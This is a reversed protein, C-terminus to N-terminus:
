LCSLIEILMNAHESLALNRRKTRMYMVYLIHTKHANNCLLVIFPIRIQKNAIFFKERNQERSFQWHQEKKIEEQYILVRIV